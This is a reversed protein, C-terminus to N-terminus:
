IMGRGKLKFWNWALCVVVELVLVFPLWKRARVNTKAVQIGYAAFLMLFPIVPMHFRGSQAYSSMVLMGLYGVTYALIFVHRRWEGSILMMFMVFIVFFSLINKIYSGGALQVQVLQGEEAQNFTPFPITFILPAFVTASAYKAFTNGGDKRRSRWEMNQQQADSKAAEIMYETQSRINDGVGILLTVAVLIGALIKKGVSMVRNSAMVIHAFFAIFIALVLATRFFFLALGISIGPLFNKFTYRQGSSLVQDFNDIALSALFIMEIEKMMTASWYIMNPNLCVFIAAMRATGDGFHRKAVHYTCVACYASLVCKILMPVFADSWDGWIAYFIALWMPYGVDDIAAGNLDIIKSLTWKSDGVLWQALDKAFPMYWEVDSQDGYVVGYHDMNFFFWVYLLWILRIVLGAIFVNRVFIKERKREWGRSMAQGGYFFLIVSLAAVFWLAFEPVYGFAAWCVFMSIFFFVISKGTIWNPITLEKARSMQGSMGFRQMWRERWGRPRLAGQPPMGQEMPPQNYTNNNQQQM